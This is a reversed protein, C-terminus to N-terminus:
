TTISFGTNLLPYDNLVNFNFTETQYHYGDFAKFTISTTVPALSYTPSFTFTDGAFSIYSPLTSTVTFTLSNGEPDHM